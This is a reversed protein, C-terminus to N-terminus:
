RQIDQLFYFNSLVGMCTESIDGHDTMTTSYSYKNNLFKFSVRRKKKQRENMLNFAVRM